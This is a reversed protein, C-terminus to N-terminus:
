LILYRYRAATVYGCVMSRRNGFHHQETKILVPRFTVELEKGAEDRVFEVKEGAYGQEIYMRTINNTLNREIKLGNYAEDGEFGSREVPIADFLTM